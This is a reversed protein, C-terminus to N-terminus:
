ERPQQCAESGLWMSGEVPHGMDHCRAEGLIPSGLSLSLSLLWSLLWLKEYDLRLLSM